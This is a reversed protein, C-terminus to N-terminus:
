LWYYIGRTVVSEAHYAAGPQFTYKDCSGQLELFRSHGCRSEDGEFPVERGALAGVDLEYVTLKPLFVTQTPFAIERHVPGLPGVGPELDHDAGPKVLMFFLPANQGPDLTPRLDRGGAHSQRTHDDGGGGGM